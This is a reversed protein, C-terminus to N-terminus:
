LVTKLCKEDSFYVDPFLSPVNITKIIEWRCKDCLVVMSDPSTKRFEFFDPNMPDQSETFVGSISCNVSIVYMKEIEDHVNGCRQCQKKSYDGLITKENNKESNKLSLLKGDAINRFIDDDLERLWKLQSNMYIDGWWKGDTIEEDIEILYLQHLKLIEDITKEEPNRAGELQFLEIIRRCNLENNVGLKIIQREFATNGYIKKNKM